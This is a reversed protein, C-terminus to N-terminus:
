AKFEVRLLVETEAALQAARDKMGAPDVQQNEWIAVGFSQWFPESREALLEQLEAGRLWVGQQLFQGGLEFLVMNFLKIRVWGVGGEEVQHEQYTMNSRMASLHGGRRMTAGVLGPMAASLALVSGDRVYTTELGDIAKGDVFLTTIREVIYDKDVGFQENLLNLVTCGVTARMRVGRQLLSAFAALQSQPLVMRISIKEAM